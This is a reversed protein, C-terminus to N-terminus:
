PDIEIPISHQLEICSMANLQGIPNLKKKVESFGNCALLKIQTKQEVKKLKFFKDQNTPTNDQIM